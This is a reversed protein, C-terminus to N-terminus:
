RYLDFVCNEASDRVEVRPADECEKFMLRARQKSDKVTDSETEAIVYGDPDLAVIRDVM